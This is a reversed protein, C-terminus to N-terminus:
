QVSKLGRAEQVTFANPETVVSDNSLILDLDYSGPPLKPDIHFQLTNDNIIELDLMLLEGAAADVVKKFGVGKLVIFTNMDGAVISNPYVSSIRVSDALTSAGSGGGGTNGSTTVASGVSVGANPTNPSTTNSAKKTPTPILTIKPKTTTSVGSVQDSSSDSNGSDEAGDNFVYWDSSTDSPDIPSVVPLNNGKIIAKFGAKVVVESGPIAEGTAPDINFFSVEGSKVILTTTNDKFSLGFSTGRVVAVANSTKIEYFEGQEVLKKARAWMSGITLQIITKKSDASSDKIVIESSFDLATPHSWPSEILARGSSSTRVSTGPTTTAETDIRRFNSDSQERVSVDTSLPTVKVSAGEVQTPSIITTDKPKLFFFAAAGLILVGGIILLAKKM